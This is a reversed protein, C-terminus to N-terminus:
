GFGTCCTYIDRDGGGGGGGGCVCVGAQAWEPETLQQEVLSLSGEKHCANLMHSSSGRERREEIGRM